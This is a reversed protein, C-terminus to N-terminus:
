KMRQYVYWVARKSCKYGTAIMEVAKTPKIKNLVILRYLELEIKDGRKNQSDIINKLTGETESVDGKAIKIEGELHEKQILLRTMRDDINNRSNISSLDVTPYEIIKKLKALRDELYELYDRQSKEKRVIRYFDQM